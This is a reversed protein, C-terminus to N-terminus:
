AGRDGDGDGDGRGEVVQNLRIVAQEFESWAERVDPARGKEAMARQVETLAAGVDEFLGEQKRRARERELREQAKRLSEQRELEQRERRERNQERRERLPDVGRPAAAGELAARDIGTRDDDERQRLASSVLVAGLLPSPSAAGLLSFKPVEEAPVDAQIALTKGIVLGILSVM